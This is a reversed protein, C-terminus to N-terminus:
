MGTTPALVGGAVSLLTSKGAGNPGTVVLREGSSLAFSVPQPLREAVSVDVIALLTQGKLGPLQPFRFRQPPPPVTIAHAERLAQRRRVSQVLGGARTARGHKPSGKEPRWKSVLRNQAASLSDQLRGHEAQQREYDLEWRDQEARRGE